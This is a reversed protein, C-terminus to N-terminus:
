EEEDIYDFEHAILNTGNSDHPLLNRCNLVEIRLLTHILQMRVTLMGYSPTNPATQESFREIYYSHILQDTPMGHLELLKKIHKYSDNKEM